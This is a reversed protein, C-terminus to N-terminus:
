QDSFGSSLKEQFSPVQFINRIFANIWIAHVHKRNQPRQLKGGKIALFTGTNDTLSLMEM